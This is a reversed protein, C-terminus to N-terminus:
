LYFPFITALYKDPFEAIGVDRFYLLKALSLQIDVNQGAVFCNFKVKLSISIFYRNEAKVNKIIPFATASIVVMTESPGFPDVFIQL